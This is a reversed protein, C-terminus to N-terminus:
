SKICAHRQSGALLTVNFFYTVQSRKDEKQLIFLSNTESEKLFVRKTVSYRWRSFVTLSCASHHNAHGSGVSLHHIRISEFGTYFISYSKSKEINKKM